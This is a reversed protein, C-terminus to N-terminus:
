SMQGSNQIGGFPLEPNLVQFLSENIAISGSSTEKVIRHKNKSFVGGFYYLALPKPREKIFKIVHDINDFVLIPLIPGFIEEQMMKSTLKPNDILTPHVFRNNPDCDGVSM